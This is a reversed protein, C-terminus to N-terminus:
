RLVHVSCPAHRVVRDATSGLFYNEFGPRHSAMVICDTGHTKAYEVIAKGPHGNVIASTANPLEDAIQRMGEEIESHTRVIVAQPIEAVVFSPIAEFVHLITFAAGEDALVRAAALVAAPDHQADVVVPLLLNKYM